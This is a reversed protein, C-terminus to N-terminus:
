KHHPKKHYSSPKKTELYAFYTCAFNFIFITFIFTFPFIYFVTQQIFKIKIEPFFNLSIFNLVLPLTIAHLGIQFVKKFHIIKKFFYKFLLYVFVSAILISTLNIIFSFILFIVFCLTFILFYIPYFFKNIASIFRTLEYIKEKNLILNLNNLPIVLNEINFSSIKKLNIVLNNKTLLLTANYQNIKNTESFEDIVLFLNKPQEFWLFFPFSYSSITTGKIIKLNFDPPLNHLSYNLNTFFNKVAFPNFKTFFTLYSISYILIVLTLFYKFSFSFKTFLIKKYYDISPFFSQKFVHFFTKVKKMRVM